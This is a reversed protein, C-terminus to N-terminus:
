APSHAIYWSHFTTFLRFTTLSGFSLSAAHSSKMIVMVSACTSAQAISSSENVSVKLYIREPHNSQTRNEVVFFYEIAQVLAALPSIHQDTSGQLSALSFFAFSSALSFAPMVEHHYKHTRLPSVSPSNNFSYITATLSLSPSLIM